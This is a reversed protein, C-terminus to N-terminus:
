SIYIYQKKPNISFFIIQGFAPESDHKDLLSRALRGRSGVLLDHSNGKLVSSGLIM